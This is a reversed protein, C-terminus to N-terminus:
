GERKYAQSTLHGTEQLLVVNYGEVEAWHLLDNARERGIQMANWNLIHLDDPSGASNM